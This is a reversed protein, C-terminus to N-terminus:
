EHKNRRRATTKRFAERDEKPAYNEVWDDWAAEIKAIEAPDEPEINPSTIIYIEEAELLAAKLQQVCDYALPIRELPDIVDDIAGCLLAYMREYDPMLTKEEM